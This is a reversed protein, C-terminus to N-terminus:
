QDINLGVTEKKSTKTGWLSHLLLAIISGISAYAIDKQADWIDGQTIADSCVEDPQKCFFAM